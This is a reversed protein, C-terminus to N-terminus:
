PFDNIRFESGAENGTKPKQVCSGGEFLVINNHNTDNNQQSM